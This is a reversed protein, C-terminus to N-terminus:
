KKFTLKYKKMIPRLTKFTSPGIGHLDAIEKETFKTLDKLSKIKVSALARQAPASLKELFNEKM